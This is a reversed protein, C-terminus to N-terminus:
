LKSSGVQKLMFGYDFNQGTHDVEIMDYWLQAPGYRWEAVTIKDPTENVEAMTTKSEVTLPRM